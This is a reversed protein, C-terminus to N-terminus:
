ECHIPFILLGVTLQCRGQIGLWSIASLPHAHSPPNAALFNQPVEQTFPSTPPAPCAWALVAAGTSLRLWHREVEIQTYSFWKDQKHFHLNRPRLELSESKTWLSHTESLELAPPRPDFVSSLPLPSGTGLLTLSSSFSCLTFFHLPVQLCCFLLTKPTLSLNWDWSREWKIKIFM